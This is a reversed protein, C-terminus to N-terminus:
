PKTFYADCRGGRLLPSSMKKERSRGREKRYSIMNGIEM